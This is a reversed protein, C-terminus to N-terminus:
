DYAYRLLDEFGLKSDQWWSTQRIWFQHCNGERTWALERTLKIRRCAGPSLLFPSIVHLYGNPEPPFRTVVDESPRLKYVDALFGHNFMADPDMTPEPQAPEGAREQSRITNINLKPAPTSTSNRSAATAAKKAQKQM